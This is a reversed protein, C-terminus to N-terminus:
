LSLGDLGEQNTIIDININPLSHLNYLEENYVKRWTGTM